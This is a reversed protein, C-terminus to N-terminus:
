ESGVVVIDFPPNLYLLQEAISRGLLRSTGIRLFLTTVGFATAVALLTGAIDDGEQVVPAAEQEAIVQLNRLVVDHEADAVDGYPLHNVISIVFCPVCHQRAFAAAHTITRDESRSTIRIAAGITM